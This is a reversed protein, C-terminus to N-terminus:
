DLPNRRIITQERGAGISIIDVPLETLEEIREVYRKANGPLSDIGTLTTIPEKWGPLEEYVPEVEALADAGGPPLKVTDGRYRYATCIRVTDLGGLVDIKTLGISSLGNVQRAHRLAPADLWGCRRPRGTTAGFENGKRGLHEGVEDHLETPFPGAGVRTLYAKVIGFVNGTMAPGVGAGGAAAGATTNSSTVYPYSGHDVDLMTGQAGEFMIRKGAKDLTHLMAGVDGIMPALVDRLEMCREYIPRYDLAELGYMGSLSFNHFEVLQRLREEFRKENLLEGLRVARRAAKDEYAPGIGRCTTGIAENGLKQERARDLAEHPPLVLPCAESLRLRERVAIGRGELYDMEQKLASPSLVVGNGIMCVVRERLVGSPVLHLVTKEGDIVLTHGANHGGQFRVVADCRATLLDVIKGKGEDGWQAGIVVIHKAM